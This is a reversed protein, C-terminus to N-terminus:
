VNEIHKFSKFNKLACMYHFAMCARKREVLSESYKMSTDSVTSSRWVSHKRKIVIVCCRWIADSSLIVPWVHQSGREGWNHADTHRWANIMYEWICSYAPCSTRLLPCTMSASSRLHLSESEPWRMRHCRCVARCTWLLQQGALVPWNRGHWHMYMVVCM